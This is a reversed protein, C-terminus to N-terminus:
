AHRRRERARAHHRAVRSRNGCRDSCWTQRARRALFFRGCRPAPCIRLSARREGGLIDIASRALAALLETAGGVAPGRDERRPSTPITLDLVAYRPVAASAANLQEAPPHPLSGGAMAAVFLERISDRLSRFAAVRLAVDDGPRPPEGHSALWDALQAPTVLLDLEEGPRVVVITSALDLAADHPLGM